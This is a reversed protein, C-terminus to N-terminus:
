CGTNTDSDLAYKEKTFPLMRSLVNDKHHFHHLLAALTHLTIMVVLVWALVEHLDMMQAKLMNDPAVINPLTFLGFVSVPFGAASSMVWGSLPMAFMLFYLFAHGAHALFKEVKRMGDPLLPTVKAIKWGLRMSALALVIIGTSKHWGYLQIKDPSIDLGEMYFGMALMGFILIAIMWHFFKAASGYSQRSNKLNMM